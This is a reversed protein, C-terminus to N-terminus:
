EYKNELTEVRNRLRIIEEILAAYFDQEPRVISNKYRAITMDWPSDKAIQIEDVFETKPPEYKINGTSVVGFEEM